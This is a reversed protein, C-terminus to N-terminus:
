ESAPEALLVDDVIQAVDRRLWRLFLALLGLHAGSWVALGITVQLPASSGLRYGVMFMPAILALDALTLVAGGLFGALSHELAPEVGAVVASDPLGLAAQLERPLAKAAPADNRFSDVRVVSRACVISVHLRHTVHPGGHSRVVITSAGLFVRRAPGEIARGDAEVAGGRLVLSRRPRYLRPGLYARRKLRDAFGFVLALSAVFGAGFFAAFVDDPPAVIVGLVLGVVLALALGAVHVAAFWARGRADVLEVGGAVPRVEFRGLHVPHETV